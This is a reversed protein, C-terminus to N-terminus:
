GKYLDQQASNVCNAGDAAATIIQRLEKTRIDGAAYIGSVGTRGDEGAKVYGHEDLDVLEKVFGTDPVTGVAIFVGDVDLQYEEATKTQKLIIWQVQQEGGIKEVTTDWICTINHFDKLADQLVQAARLQDRRHILYVQKCDRALFIADEVAVDGGGVVAVTKDKFFAGDCTACYSVGMGALEEEGPVELKRHVAGAALIVAKGRYDAKKTHVIKWEGDLSIGKVKGRAIEVGLGTVHEKLKEALELGSIGPMGPYNDVEYTNVIQGGQIFSSELIVVKLGARKGYIGATLGAPGSGVIIMDYVNECMCKTEKRDSVVIVYKPMSEWVSITIGARM